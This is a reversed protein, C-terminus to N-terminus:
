ITIWNLLLSLVLVAVTSACFAGAGIAGQTITRAERRRFISIAFATVAIPLTGMLVYAKIDTEISPQARWDFYGLALLCASALVAVLALSRSGRRAALVAGLSCTAAAALLAVVYAATIVLLVETDSGLPGRKLQPALAPPRL